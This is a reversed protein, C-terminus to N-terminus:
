GPPNVEQQYELRRQQDVQHRQETRYSRRLQRQERHRKWWAWVQEFKRRVWTHVDRAWDYESALLALGALFTLAGPGPFFPSAFLASLLLVLVGVVTVIVRRVHGRFGRQVPQLPIPGSADGRDAQSSTAVTSSRHLRDVVESAKRAQGATTLPLRVDLRENGSGLTLGASGSAPRALEWGTLEAWSVALPPHEISGLHLLCRRETVFLLGSRDGDGVVHVWAQIPEDVDLHSRFPGLVMRERLNCIGRRLM